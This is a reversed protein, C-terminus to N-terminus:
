NSKSTKVIATLLKLMEENDIYISDFQEKTIIESEFLLELWYATEAAEKLAISMKATFDRKSFGNEAERINAGISTGSRLLQKSLIYEQKESCLFKYLKIIRLAFAKSKNQAINEAV